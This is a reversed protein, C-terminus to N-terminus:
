SACRRRLVISAAQLLAAAALIAIVVRIVNATRLLTTSAAVVGAYLLVLIAAESSIAVFLSGLASGIWISVVAVVLDRAFHQQPAGTLLRLATLAIGYALVGTVFGYIASAASVARPHQALFFFHVARSAIESRFIWFAGAGAVLASVVLVVTGFIELTSEPTMQPLHFPYVPGGRFMNNAAVGLMPSVALVLPALLLSALLHERKSKMLAYRLLASM